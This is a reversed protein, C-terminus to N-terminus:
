KLTLKAYDATDARTFGLVFIAPTFYIILYLYLYLCLGTLFSDSDLLVHFMFSVSHSDEADHM